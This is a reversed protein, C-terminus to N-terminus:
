VGAWPGSTAWLLTPNQGLHGFVVLHSILFHPKMENHAKNRHQTNTSASISSIQALKYMLRLKM